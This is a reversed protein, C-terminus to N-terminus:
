FHFNTCYYISEMYVACENSKIIMVKSEIVAKKM